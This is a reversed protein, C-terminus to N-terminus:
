ATRKWMYVKMYPPMNNHAQGGGVYTTSPSFGTKKGSSKTYLSTSGGNGASFQNEIQHSHSPMENKTLTHTAEGATAQYGTDATGSTAYLFTDELQKWTGGFLTEPTKTNDVSIYISGIPYVANLFDTIDSKTHKHGYNSKNDLSDKVLRESPYRTDNTTSSWSRVKNSMDEKGSVDPISNRIDSHATSSSNHNGILTSIKTVISNKLGVIISDNSSVM